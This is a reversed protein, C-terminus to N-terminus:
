SSRGRKRIRSLSLLYPGHKVRTAFSLCISTSLVGTRAGFTVRDTFAEDATHSAFTQIVEQDQTLTVQVPGNAFVDRIEIVSTRMLTKTLAYRVRWVLATM